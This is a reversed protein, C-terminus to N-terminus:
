SRPCWVSTGRATRRAAFISGKMPQQVIPVTNTLKFVAGLLFPRWRAAIGHKDAVEDIRTSALYGYPSSFDFWYELRSTM